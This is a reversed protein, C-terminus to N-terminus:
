RYRGLFLLNRSVAFNPLFQQDHWVQGNDLWRRWTARLNRNRTWQKVLRSSEDLGLDVILGIHGGFSTAIPGHGRRTQVLQNSTEHTRISAAIPFLPFGTLPVKGTVCSGPLQGSISPDALPFATGGSDKEITEEYLETDLRRPSEGKTIPFPIV